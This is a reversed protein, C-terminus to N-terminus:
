AGCTWDGPLTVEAEGRSVTLAGSWRTSEMGSQDGEGSTTVTASVGSGEFVGGETLAEYGGPDRASLLIMEDDIKVVAQSHGNPDQPCTAVLVVADGGELSCGLGPTIVQSFEDFHMAQLALTGAPEGGTPTPETPTEAGQTAPPPDVASDDAPPTCAAMLATAAVLSVLTISRM